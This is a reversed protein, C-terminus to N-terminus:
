EQGETKWGCAAPVYQRSLRQFGEFSEVTAGFEMQPLKFMSWSLTLATNEKPWMGFGKQSKMIEYSQHNMEVESTFYQVYSRIIKALELQSIKNIEHSTITSPAARAANANRFCFAPVINPLHARLDKVTVISVTISDVTSAWAKFLWATILDNTSVGDSKAKWERLV